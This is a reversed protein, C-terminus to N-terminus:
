SDCLNTAIKRRFWPIKGYYWVIYLGPLLIFLLSRFICQHAIIFVHVSFQLFYLTALLRVFNAYGATGLVLLFGLIRQKRPKDLTCLCALGFILGLDLATCNWSLRLKHGNFWLYCNKCAVHKGLFGLYAAVLRCYAEAVIQWLLTYYIFLSIICLLLYLLLEKQQQRSLKYM